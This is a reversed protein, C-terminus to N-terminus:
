GGGRRDTHQKRSNDNRCLVLGLSAHDTTLPNSQTGASEPWGCAPTAHCWPEDQIRGKSYTRWRSDYGRQVTSPRRTREWELRCAECRTGATITRTPCPTGPYPGLCRRNM